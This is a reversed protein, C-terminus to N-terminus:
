LGCAQACTTVAASPPLGGRYQESLDMICALELPNLDEVRAPRTATEELFLKLLKLMVGLDSSSAQDGGQLQPVSPYPYITSSPPCSPYAANSEVRDFILNDEKLIEHIFGGREYKNALAPDRMHAEWDDSTPTFSPPPPPSPDTDSPPSFDPTPADSAFLSDDMDVDMSIDMAQNLYEGIPLFDM